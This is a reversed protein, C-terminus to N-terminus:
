NAPSKPGPAWRDPAAISTAVWAFGHAARQEQDIPASALREQLAALATTRYDRAADLAKSIM